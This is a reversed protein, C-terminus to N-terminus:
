AVAVLQEGNLPGYSGDGGEDAARLAVLVDRTHPRRDGDGTRRFRRCRGATAAASGAAAASRGVADGWWNTMTGPWRLRVHESQGLLRCVPPVIVVADVVDVVSMEEAAGSM